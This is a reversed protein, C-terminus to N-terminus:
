RGAGRRESVIRSLGIETSERTIAHGNMLGYRVSLGFDFALRQTKNVVGVDVFIHM